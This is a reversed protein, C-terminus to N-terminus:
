LTLQAFEPLRFQFEDPQPQHADHQEATGTTHPIAALISAAAIPARGAVRILPTAIAPIHSVLAFALVPVVILAHLLVALVIAALAVADDATDRYAVL